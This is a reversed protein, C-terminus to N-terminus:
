QLIEKIKNLKEVRINILDNHNFWTTWTGTPMKFEVNIDLERSNIRGAAFLVIGHAGQAVGTRIIVEDGEKWEQLVNM